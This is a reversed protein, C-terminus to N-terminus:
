VTVGDTLVAGLSLDSDGIRPIDALYCCYLESWEFGVRHTARVTVEKGSYLHPNKVLDCFSVQTESHGGVAAVACIILSLRVFRAITHQM